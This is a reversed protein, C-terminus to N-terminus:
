QYTGTYHYRVEKSRQLSRGFCILCVTLSLSLLLNIPPSFYIAVLNNTPPRDHSVVSAFREANKAWAPDTTDALTILSLIVPLDFPKPNTSIADSSSALVAIALNFPWFRSPLATATDSALGCAGLSLEKERL